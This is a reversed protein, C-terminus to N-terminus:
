ELFDGYTDKTTLVDPPAFMREVEEMIISTQEPEGPFRFGQVQLICLSKIIFGLWKHHECTMPFTTFFAWNDPEDHIVIWTWGMADLTARMAEVDLPTRIKKHLHLLYIDNVAM